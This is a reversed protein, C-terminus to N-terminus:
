PKSGIWLMVRDPPMKPESQHGISLGISSIIRRLEGAHAPAKSTDRVRMVLGVGVLTPTTGLEPAIPWDAEKLCSRIQNALDCAEADGMTCTVLILGKTSSTRLAEVFATRTSPSLVRPKLREQLALLEKEAKAAREQQAAAELALRETRANATSAEALAKLTGEGAKGALVKAEAAAREATAAREQQQAVRLELTQTRTEAEEAAKNSFYWAVLGIIATAITLVVTSVGAWYSWWSASFRM